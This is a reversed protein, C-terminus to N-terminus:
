FSEREKVPFEIVLDKDEKVFKKAFNVINIFMQKAWQERKEEERYAFAKEMAGYFLSWHFLPNIKSIHADDTLNPFLYYYRMKLTYVKDPPNITVKEEAICYDKPVSRLSVVSTDPYTIDFIRIGAKQLPKGKEDGLTMRRLNYIDVYDTVSLDDVIHYESIGIETVFEKTKLGRVPDHVVAVFEQQAINIGTNVLAVMSPTNEDLLAICFDKIEGRTM